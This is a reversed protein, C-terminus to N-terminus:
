RRACVARSTAGMCIARSMATACTLDNAAVGVAQPVAGGRTRDAFSGGAGSGQWGFQVQCVLEAAEISGPCV